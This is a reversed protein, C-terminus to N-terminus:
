ARFREVRHAAEIRAERAVVPAASRPSRALAKAALLAARRLPLAKSPARTRSFVDLMPSAMGPRASFARYLEAELPTLAEARGLLNTWQYMELCERDRDREWARVARDLAPPDDLVPAVAEGLKRGFRLADRIGQATVPDKFHGADGALAWGPGTSRRFFSPLDTAGRVKTERTCGDLRERLPPIAAVTRDYEGNPDDRFAPGREVPPMLLVLALGDDCPFATALERGERWQVAIPRWEERTDRWYAFFCARGNPNSRTYEEAGALRAVASKRGDAGVVLKARLESGDDLRVGTVREGDRLLESAATRERVEAGAERATEVLAADLGPRRVCLAYDVGDVPTYGGSLTMGRAGMMAVPMRPPGLALVRELAGTRKLEAVGGAFLLHTSLTDSPFKARDVAVVRRGARALATAAASGACRAGVIVADYEM